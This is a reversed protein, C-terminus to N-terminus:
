VGVTVAPHSLPASVLAREYRHLVLRAMARQDGLPAAAVSTSMGLDAAAEAAEAACQAAFRGPATFYAAVAVRRCGRAALAAVAETVSPAGPGTASAYGPRVPVGGLRASLLGATRGTDEASHPDRSGAAALVVGTRHPDAARRAPHGPDAPRAALVTSPGLLSRGLLPRGSRPSAPFPRRSIPQEPASPDTLPQGSLDRGCLGQEHTSPDPAPPDLPPWGAEVLRAALAEALLPHPGLPAAVRVSLHPAALAAAPLDVKVHHGRGLLLPVLVVQGRLGALVDGLLPENLEIHGLRVPLGPRLRRVRELLPTVTRLANPDRSGHAVALLTPTM